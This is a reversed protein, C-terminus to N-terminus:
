ETSLLKFYLLYLNHNTINTNMIFIKGTIFNIIYCNKIIDIDDDRFRSTRRSLYYLTSYSFVQKRYYDINDDLCCKIELLAGKDYFDPVGIINKHELVPSNEAAICFRLFIRFDDTEMLADFFKVYYVERELLLNVFMEFDKCIIEQTNLTHVFSLYCIDVLKKDRVNYSHKIKKYLESNQNEPDNLYKGIEYENLRRTLRFIFYYEIFSGFLQPDMYPFREIKPFNKEKLHPVYEPCNINRIISSVSKKKVSKVPSTPRCKQFNNYVNFLTYVNRLFEM